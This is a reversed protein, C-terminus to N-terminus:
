EHLGWYTPLLMSNNCTSSCVIAKERFHFPALRKIAHWWWLSLVLHLSAYVFHWKIIHLWIIQFVSIVFLRKTVFVIANVDDYISDRTVFSLLIQMSLYLYKVLQCAVLRQQKACWIAVSLTEIEDACVKWSYIVQQWYARKKGAYSSHDVLEHKALSKVTTSIIVSKVCSSHNIYECMGRIHAANLM